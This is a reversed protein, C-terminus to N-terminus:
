LEFYNMSDYINLEHNRLDHFCKSFFNADEPNSQGVFAKSIKTGINKLALVHKRFKNSRNTLKANATQQFVQLKKGKKKLPSAM